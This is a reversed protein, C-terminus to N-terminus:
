SESKSESVSKESKSSSSRKPRSSVPSRSSSKESCLVKDRARWAKWFDGGTVLSKRADEKKQERM